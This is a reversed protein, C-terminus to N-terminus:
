IIRSGMVVSLIRICLRRVIQGGKGRIMRILQCFLADMKNIEYKEILDM